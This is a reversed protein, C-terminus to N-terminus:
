FYISILTCSDSPANVDIENPKFRRRFTCKHQHSASICKPYCKSVIKVFM